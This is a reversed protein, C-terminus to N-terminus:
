IVPHASSYYSRREAVTREFRMQRISEPDLILNQVEPYDTPHRVGPVVDEPTYVKRAVTLLKHPQAESIEYSLRTLAESLEGEINWTSHWDIAPHRDETYFFRMLFGNSTDGDWLILAKLNPMRLFATRGAAVLLDVFVSAHGPVRRQQLLQSTLVLHELRPYHLNGPASFFDEAKVAFTGCFSKLRTALAAIALGLRRGVFHRQYRAGPRLWISHWDYQLLANSEYFLSFEDLTSPLAKLVARYETWFRAVTHRGPHIWAEHRFSQLNPLAQGIFHGLVPPSIHRYYHRRIVLSRVIPAPCFGKLRRPGNRKCCTTFVERFHPSETCGLTALLRKKSALPPLLHEGDCMRSWGPCPDDQDAMARRLAAAHHEYVDQSAGYRYGESFRCDRFGHRGDSPSYAGIDLEIGNGEHRKWRSIIAMFKQLTNMFVIDNTRAAADDEATECVTCDYEPLRIRLIIRRVYNRRPKNDSVLREFDDLRDQDLVLLRFNEHSFYGHWERCVLPLQPYPPDTTPWPYVFSRIYDVIIWRVELPLQNWCFM